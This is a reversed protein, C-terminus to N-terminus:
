NHRSYYDEDPNLIQVVLEPISQRNVDLFKEIISLVKDDPPKDAYASRSISHAWVQPRYRVLSSLSFLALYQLSFESVQVGRVPSILDTGGHLYGAAADLGERIGFRPTDDPPAHEFTGNECVAFQESFEDLDDVPMNQFWIETRSFRYVASTLRWGSLIPFRRRWEKVIQKLSDRDNFIARDEVHIAFHSSSGHTPQLGVSATLAEEGFTMLYTRGLGPIRSLVDQLSLSIGDLGDSESTSFYVSRLQNAVFDMYCVRSFRAVVDNFEQFTGGGTIKLRLDAIRSTATSIDSLGHSAKLTALSRSGSAMVLAKAFGVMGYFLQLPAIELPSNEAAEYFLRGQQLCATIDRATTTNPERGFRRKILPKLNESSELFKCRHWDM